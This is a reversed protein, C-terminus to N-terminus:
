RPWGYYTGAVGSIVVVIALIIIALATIRQLVRVGRPVIEVVNHGEAGHSLGVIESKGEPLVHHARENACEASDALPRRRKDNLRSCGCSM